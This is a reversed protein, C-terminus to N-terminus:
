HLFYLFLQYFFFRVILSFHRRPYQSAFNYWYQCTWGAITRNWDTESIIASLGHGATAGTTGVVFEEGTLGCVPGVWYCLLVVGVPSACVRGAESGVRICGTHSANRDALDVRARVYTHAATPTYCRSSEVNSPYTGLRIPAM